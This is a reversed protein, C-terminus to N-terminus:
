RITHVMDIPRALHERMAVRAGAGDGAEITAIVRAHEAQTAACHRDTGAIGFPLADRAPPM